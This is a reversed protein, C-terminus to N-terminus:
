KHNDLFLRNMFTIWEPAPNLMESLTKSESFLIPKNSDNM